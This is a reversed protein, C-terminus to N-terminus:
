STASWLVTKVLVVGEAPREEMSVVLVRDWEPLYKTLIRGGHRRNRRVEDPAVVAREVAAADILREGM